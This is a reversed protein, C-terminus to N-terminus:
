GNKGAMESGIRMLAECEEESWDYAVDKAVGLVGRVEGHALMPVAVSGEAGTARAGPRVVGSQDTQLNCIQVPGRRAAAEGAIGKGVPITGIKELVGQPIGSHAALQLLGDSNVLHITGASANFARVIKGLLIDLSEGAAVDALLPEVLTQDFNM